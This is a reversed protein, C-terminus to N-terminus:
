EETKWHVSEFAIPEARRGAIHHMIQRAHFRGNEIFWRSTQYGGCVTGAVYVGPRTTEFTADDYVPTKFGDDAFTLGLGELFSYDPHYGTMALVWDNAIERLGEPTRLVISAKRIQDIATNFFAHISGEKIRNELDPRIWYKIKDSLTAARVILSVEAGHRYCDLAAKAASNKAGIIAVKQRVYPYPERYYHTVKALHEGPVNLANPQDFFGTSVVIHRAAHSGKDTVVTFDGRGGRVELVREYLSIDLSERQAVGRYYEVAEERTPKYGQVPFPYGGIEILEPTSFFEMQAPYGVISNVLSGKEIIHSSLDERNAEIACALGVPGAGIVIVDHM